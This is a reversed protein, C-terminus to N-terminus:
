QAAAGSAAQALGRPVPAGRAADTVWGGGMAGHVNVIQTYSEVQSRVAALEAAFLENRAYLVELCDAYGLNLEAQKLNAQASFVAARADGFDGQARDLDAQSLANQEALPKVRGLNAQATTLRAQQSQLAGRASEVQAQLPKPDLQFLLQGEKVLQGEQYAIRDLFGSARAVISVQRSSETQAVFSPSYTIDHPEITVVTVESAPRQVPAAAEKGCAAVLLAVGVVMLSRKLSQEQM